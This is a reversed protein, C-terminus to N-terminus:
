GHCYRVVLLVIGTGVAAAMVGVISALVLVIARFSAGTLGPGSERPM